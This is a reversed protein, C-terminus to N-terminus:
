LLKMKATSSEWEGSRLSIVGRSCANPLMLRIFFGMKVITLGDTTGLLFRWGAIEREM